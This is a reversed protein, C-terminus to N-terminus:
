FHKRQIGTKVILVMDSILLYWLFVLANHKSCPSTFALYLGNEFCVKGSMIIHGRFTLSLSRQPSSHTEPTMRSAVGSGLPCKLKHWGWEDMWGDMWRGASSFRWCPSWVCRFLFAILATGEELFFLCTKLDVRKGRVDSWWPEQETFQARPPEACVTKLFLSWFGSGNYHTRQGLNHVLDPDFPWCEPDFGLPSFRVRGDRLIHPM